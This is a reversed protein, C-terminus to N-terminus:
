DPHLLAGAGRQLLTPLTPACKESRWLQQQQQKVSGNKIRRQHAPALSSSRQLYKRYAVYGSLTTNRQDRVRLKCHCDVSPARRAGCVATGIRTTGLTTAYRTSLISAVCDAMEFNLVWSGRVKRLVAGFRAFPSQEPGSACRMAFIQEARADVRHRDSRVDSGRGQTPAPQHGHYFAM